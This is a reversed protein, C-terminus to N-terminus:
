ERLTSKRVEVAFDILIRPALNSYGPPGYPRNVPTLSAKLVIVFGSRPNVGRSELKHYCVPLTVALIENICPM